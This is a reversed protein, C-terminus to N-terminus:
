KMGKEDVEMVEAKDPNEEFANCIMVPKGKEHNPLPNKDAEQEHIIEGKQVKDHYLRRITYCDTTPHCVIKHFLCFWLNRKDEQTPPTPVEITKLEGNGM